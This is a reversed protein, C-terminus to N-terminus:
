WEKTIIAYQILYRIRDVSCTPACMQLKCNTTSSFMVTTLGLQVLLGSCVLGFGIRDGRKKDSEKRGELKRICM